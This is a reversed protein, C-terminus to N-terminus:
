AVMALARSLAQLRIEPNSTSMAAMQRARPAVRAVRLRGSKSPVPMSRMSGQDKVHGKLAILRAMAGRVNVAVRLVQNVGNERGHGVDLADGPRVTCPTSFWSSTPNASMAQRSSRVASLM